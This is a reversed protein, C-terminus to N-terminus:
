TKIQMYVKSPYRSICYNKMRFKNLFICRRNHKSGENSINVKSGTLIKMNYPAFTWHSRWSIRKTVKAGTYWILKNFKRWECNTNLIMSSLQKSFHM